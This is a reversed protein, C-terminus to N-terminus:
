YTHKKLYQEIRYAKGDISKMVKVVNEYDCRLESLYSHVNYGQLHYKQYRCFHIDTEVTKIKHALKTATESLEKAKDRLDRLKFEMTEIANRHETQPSWFQSMFDDFKDADMAEAMAQGLGPRRNRYPEEGNFGFFTGVWKPNMLEWQEELTLRQQKAYEKVPIAVRNHGVKLATDPDYDINLANVIVYGKPMMGITRIAYESFNLEQSRNMKSYALRGICSEQGRSTLLDAMPPKHRMDYGFLGDDDGYSM